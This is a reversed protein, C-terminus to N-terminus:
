HWGRSELFITRCTQWSKLLIIVWNHHKTSSHKIKPTGHILTEKRLNKFDSVQPHGTRVTARHGPIIPHLDVVPEFALAVPTSRGLGRATFRIGGMIYSTKSTVWKIRRLKGTLQNHVVGGMHMKKVDWPVSWHCLCFLVFLGCIHMSCPIYPDILLCFTCRFFFYSKWSEASLISISVRSLCICCFWSFPYFLGM